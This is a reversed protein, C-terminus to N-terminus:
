KGWVLEDVRSEGTVKEKMHTLCSEVSNGTRTYSDREYKDLRLCSKDGFEGNDGM